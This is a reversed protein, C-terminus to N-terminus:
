NIPAKCGPCTAPGMSVMYGVRCGCHPCEFNSINTWQHDAIFETSGCKCVPPSGLTGFVGTSAGCRACRVGFSVHVGAM